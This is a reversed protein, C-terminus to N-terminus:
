RPALAMRQITARARAAIDGGPPAGDADIAAMLSTQAAGTRDLAVEALGKLLWAEALDPALALARAADDASGAHDFMGARARARAVWLGADDPAGDLAGDLAASLDVAAAAFRAAGIRAAGRARLADPQRPVIALAATASADAEDGRGAGLWFQAALALMEARQARTLDPERTAADDLARAAADDAGLASLALAECILAPVGGGFRKWEAAAERGATPDADTRALCEAYGRVPASGVAPPGAAMVPAAILAILSVLSIALIIKLAVREGSPM